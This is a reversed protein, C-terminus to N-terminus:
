YDRRVARLFELVHDFFRKLESGKASFQPSNKSAFRSSFKKAATFVGSNREKSGSDRCFNVVPDFVGFLLLIDCFFRCFRGLLEFGFDRSRAVASCDDLYLLRVFLRLDTLLPAVAGLSGSSFDCWLNM